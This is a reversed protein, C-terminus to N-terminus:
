PRSRRQRDQALLVDVLEQRMHFNTALLAALAVPLEMLGRRATRDLLGLTGMVAFGEDRAAGVGARDDMLILDAQGSVALAIAAREGDDLTALQLDDPIAPTPAIRLWAPRRTIWARVASPTRAQTLEDRVTEPVLVLEFVQPLLGIHGILVLYHLPGADAVVCRVRGKSAL